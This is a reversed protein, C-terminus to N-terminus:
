EGGEDGRVKFLVQCNPPAFHFEIDVDPNFAKAWSSFILECVMPCIKETIYRRGVKTLYDWWPCREVKFFGEEAKIDVTWGEVSFFVDLSNMISKIDGPLNFRRKVRKAMIWALREWVKFDLRIAEELGKDEEVVLFWLGDLAFYAERLWKLIEDSSLRLM